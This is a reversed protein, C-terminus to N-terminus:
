ELGAFPFHKKDEKKESPKLYISIIAREKCKGDNCEVYRPLEILLAERLQESVDFYEQKLESLEQTHYFNEVKIPTDIMENCIACPMKAFTKATLHVVLDQDALYAEGDVFVKAEFRLDKEEVQLFSPDFDGKIKERKGDQLRDLAISLCDSM